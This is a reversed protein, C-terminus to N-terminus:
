LEKLVSMREKGHVHCIAVLLKKIQLVDARKTLQSGEGFSSVIHWAGRGGDRTRQFICKSARKPETQFAHFM